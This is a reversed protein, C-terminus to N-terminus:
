WSRSWTLVAGTAHGRVAVPEIRVERDHVGFWYLAASGAIALGGIVDFATGLTADRRGAADKEHEVSWDCGGSAGCAATVEHGLTTAHHGLYVGGVLLGVGAAAIAAVALERTRGPASAQRLGDSRVERAITGASTGRDTACTALQASYSEALQRQPSPGASQLYRQYASLARACDGPQARLRYAQGLNYQLGDAHSLAYSREWSAIADTYRGRDFALQGDRYAQEAAPNPAAAAARALLLAIATAIARTSM